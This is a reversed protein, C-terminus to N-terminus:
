SMMSVSPLFPRSTACGVMSLEDRLYMYLELQSWLFSICWPLKKIWGKVEVRCLSSERLGRRTEWEKHGLQISAVGCVFLSGIEKFGHCRLIMGNPAKITRWRGESPSFFIWFSVQEDKISHLTDFVSEYFNDACCTWIIIWSQGGHVVKAYTKFAVCLILRNIQARRLQSVLFDFNFTM